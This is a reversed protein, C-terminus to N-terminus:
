GVNTTIISYVILCYSLLTFCQIIMYYSVHVYFNFIFKLAFKFKLEIWNMEVPLLCKVIQIQLM